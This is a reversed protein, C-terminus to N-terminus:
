REIGNEKVVSSKEQFHRENDPVNRQLIDEIEVKEDDSFQDENETIWHDHETYDPAPIPCPFVSPMPAGYGPAGVPILTPIPQGDAMTPNPFNEMVNPQINADQVAEDPIDIAELIEKKVEDRDGEIIQEDMDKIDVSKNGITDSGYNNANEIIMDESISTIDKNFSQDMSVQRLIVDMDHQNKINGFKGFEIAGITKFGYTMKESEATRRIPNAHKILISNEVREFMLAGKNTPAIIQKKENYALKALAIIKDIDPKEARLIENKKILTYANEKQANAQARKVEERARNLAENYLQARSEKPMMLIAFQDSVWVFPKVVAEGIKKLKEALARFLSKIKSEKKNAKEIAENIYEKEQHENQIPASINGPESFEKKESYTIDKKPVAEDSIQKGDTKEQSVDHTIFHIAKKGDPLTKTSFSVADGTKLNLSEGQSKNLYYDMGEEDTVFGFGKEKNYFKVTGKM